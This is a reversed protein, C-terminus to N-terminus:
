QTVLYELKKTLYAWVPGTQHYYTRAVAWCDDSLSLRHLMGLDAQCTGQASTSSGRLGVQPLPQPWPLLPASSGPWPLLAPAPAGPVPCNLGAPPGPAGLAMRKSSRQEDEESVM